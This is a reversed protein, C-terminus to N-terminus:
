RKNFFDILDKLPYTNLVDKKEAWGRRAMAIGLSIRAMTDKHHSDTGIALKVGYGLAKRIDTDNLDLRKGYSNIEMAIGLDAAKEFVRDIDVEYPLRENMVRGTPHGLINMHKNEMATLIRETMREKPSKFGSHVSCIVVDLRKLIDDDFDLEGDSRIDVECGTLIKFNKFRKDKNLEKIEDLQKLLRKEDMGNAIREGKSHDSICIYEYGLRMGERAMEEVTSYGDSYKTHIHLDGRIDDYGIVKPLTGKIAAEIEGRNERMEPPMIQMGLSKYIGEEDHGAIRKSGKFLGYESLKMGKKIAIKRMEINHDKSGTFYQLASGFEDDKLVRVDTQMGGKLLVASKTEGKALVRIVDPMSTFEDMVRKTATNNETTILIDLDGITEKRRRLSGAPEIHNVGKVRKLRGVIEDAIQLAVGLLMREQGKEHLDVGKLINEESKAGFGKLAAIKHEQAAKKLGAINQIKLKNFLLMAKKPGMGPVEILEALGKPLSAKLREYGKIKGTQIYEVIKKALGEGVGPIEMLGEMGEVRYIEQVDNSMSEIARAARSYAQPKWKVNQMELIDAIAYFIAAIEPNRM